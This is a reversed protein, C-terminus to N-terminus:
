VWRCSHKSSHLSKGSFHAWNRQLLSGIGPVAALCVFSCLWVCDPSRTGVHPLSPCYQSNLSTKYGAESLFLLWFLLQCACGFTPISPHRSCKEKSNIVDLSVLLSFDSLLLLATHSALHTDGEGKGMGHAARARRFSCAKGLHFFVPRDKTLTYVYSSEGTLVQLCARM